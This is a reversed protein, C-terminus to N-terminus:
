VTPLFNFFVDAVWIMGGYLAFECAGVIPIAVFKDAFDFKEAVKIEKEPKITNTTIHGMLLCVVYIYIILFWGYDLYIKKAIYLFFLSLLLSVAGNKLQYGKM